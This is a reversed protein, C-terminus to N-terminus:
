SDAQQCRAAVEDGSIVRLGKPDYPHGLL